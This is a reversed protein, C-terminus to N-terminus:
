KEVLKNYLTIVAFTIVWTLAVASVLGLIFTGFSLSGSVQGSELRVTHLFSQGVKFVFDPMIIVAIRCIIFVAAVVVASANAFANANLM